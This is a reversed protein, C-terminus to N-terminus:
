ENGVKMVAKVIDVIPQLYQLVLDKYYCINIGLIIGVLLLLVIVKNSIVGMKSKIANQNKEMQKFHEYDQHKIDLLLDRNKLLSQKIDEM